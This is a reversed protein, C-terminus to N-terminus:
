CGHSGSETRRLGVGEFLAQASVELRAGHEDLLRSFSGFADLVSDGGREHHDALVSCIGLMLDHRVKLPPCPLLLVALVVLQEVQRM